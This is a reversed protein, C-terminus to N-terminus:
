VSCVVRCHAMNEMLKPFLKIGGVGKFEGAEERSWMFWFLSGVKTKLFSQMVSLIYVLFPSPASSIAEGVGHVHEFLEGSRHVHTSPVPGYM